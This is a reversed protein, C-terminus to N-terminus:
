FFIMNRLIVRVRVRVRKDVLKTSKKAYSVARQHDSYVDNFFIFWYPRKINSTFYFFNEEIFASWYKIFYLMKRKMLEMCIKKNNLLHDM